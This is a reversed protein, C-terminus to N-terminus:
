FYWYLRPSCCGLVGIFSLLAHGHVGIYLKPSWLWLCWFVLLVFGHVDVFSFFVIVHVGISGLLIHDHVGVFGLFTIVVCM